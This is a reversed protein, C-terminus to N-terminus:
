KQWQEMETPQTLRQQRMFPHQHLLKQEAADFEAHRRNCRMSVSEVIKLSKVEAEQCTAASTGSALAAAEASCQLWIARHTEEHRKAFAYFRDFIQRLTPGITQDPKLQPLRITFNMNINLIAIRCQGGIRETSIEVRPDMRTSAYARGGGVQPGNSLMSALLRQPTDGAVLYHEYRTLLEAGAQSVLCLWILAACLFKISCGIM